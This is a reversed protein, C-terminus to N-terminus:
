SAPDGWAVGTILAVASNRRRMWNVTREARFGVSNTQWLSVLEAAVPTAAITDGTPNDMMELSAETSMDVAVEGEDGFYVDEANVLAVYNGVYQSTIAPLGMFTGGNLTLGPFEAQGLANTMLSLSLATTASMVWVGSTLANNALVFKGMAAKADARVAEGDNGSSAVATLGNTISAPKVNATGANSPDIFAQDQAKAVANVISNRLLVEGSPSSDRLQEMTAVVINAVKLPNMETRTWSPKTLPKAKGEGVWYAASESAETILPVRFPIRTFGPIGNQGFRGIITRPRLFEVFDAWGGENGILAADTTTNSAIVAAKVIEVVQPDREGYLEKAITAPDRHTKHALGICRVYRAFRIGPEPANAKISVPVRAASGEAATKPTGVAKARAAQAAELDRLDKLELEISKIEERLTDFEEKEAVDKTRGEELAKGQIETLKTQKAQLEAEFAVIQEAITKMDTGEKPAPISKTKSTTGSAGPADLRVVRHQKEGSAARLETDVSKIATITAEWNAPITVASLELWLWKMFRYSYSGEIRASELPQFGISLGQVLGHKISQWAEDLRDKLAGPEDIKTIKAKIVIGADTVKAFTVHGIPKDSKHQWLLPIPLKFDAGKPEVIDGTRDATPTTAIGEIERADEDVAKVTLLSYARNM